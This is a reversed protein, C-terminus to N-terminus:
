RGARVRPDVVSYSLEVLTNVLLYALTMWVVYGQILPYDRNAIAEIALRGLGPWTFITEIIVAGGLLVGLSLGVLTLIQKAVSRFLHNWLIRGPPIGRAVAGRIHPQSLEEIVLARIQRAMRSGQLFGMALAPLLVRAGHHFDSVPIWQWQVSFLYILVLAIWPAPLSIGTFTVIGVLRDVWTDKKLGALTGLGLGMVLVFVLTVGALSLTAPLAGALVDVVPKKYKFSTGLDGTCLGLVWTGYRTWPPENLGLSERYAEVVEESPTIGNSSLMLLAPDGPSLDVLFFTVLSIGVLTPVLLLTKKFVYRLLPEGGFLVRGRAEPATMKM